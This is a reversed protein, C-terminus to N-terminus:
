RYVPAALVGVRRNLQRGILSEDWATPLAKGFARAHLAVRLDGLGPVAAALAHRLAVARQQSLVLSAM